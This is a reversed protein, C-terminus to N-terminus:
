CNGMFDPEYAYETPNPGDVYVYCGQEQQLVNCGGLAFALVAVVLLWVARAARM